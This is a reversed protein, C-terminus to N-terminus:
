KNGAGMAGPVSVGAGSKNTLLAGARHSRAGSKQPSYQAMPNIGSYVAANGTKLVIPKQTMEVPNTQKVM